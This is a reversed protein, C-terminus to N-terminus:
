KENIQLKAGNRIWGGDDMTRPIKMAKEV